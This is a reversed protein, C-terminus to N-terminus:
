QKWIRAECSKIRLVQKLFEQKVVRPELSKSGLVKKGVRAEWSKSWVSAAWSKSGLM